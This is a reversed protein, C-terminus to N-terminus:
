FSHAVSSMSMHSIVPPSFSVGHGQGLQQKNNVPSSPHSRLKKSNEIEEIYDEANSPRKTTPPSTASALSGSSVNRIIHNPEESACKRMKMTVSKRAKSGEKFYDLRSPSIKFIYDEHLDAVMDLLAEIDNVSAAYAERVKERVLNRDVLSLNKRWDLESYSKSRRMLQQPPPILSSSLNTKAMEGSLGETLSGSSTNRSSPKLMGSNESSQISNETVSHVAAALAEM